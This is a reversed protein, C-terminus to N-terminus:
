VGNHYCLPESGCVRLSDQIKENAISKVTGYGRSMRIEAKYLAYAFKVYVHIDQYFTLLAKQGAKRDWRNQLYHGWNKM